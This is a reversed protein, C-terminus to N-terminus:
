AMKLNIDVVWSETAPPIYDLASHPRITNYYNRLREILVEAKKPVKIKRSPNKFLIEEEELYNFFSKIIAIVKSISTQSLKRTEKATYLYERLLSTTISNLENINKETFFQALRLLEKNYDYNNTFFV